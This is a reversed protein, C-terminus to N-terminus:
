LRRTTGADEYVVPPGHGRQICWDTLAKRQADLSYGECAQDMTSVRTYIAASM